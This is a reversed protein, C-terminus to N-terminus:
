AQGKGEVGSKIEMERRSLEGMIDGACSCDSSPDGRPYQGRRQGKTNKFINGDSEWAGKVGGSM